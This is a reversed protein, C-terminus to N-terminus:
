RPNTPVVVIRIRQLCNYANEICLLGAVLKLRLAPRNKYKTCLKSLCSAQVRLMLEHFLKLYDLLNIRFIDRMLPAAQKVGMSIKACNALNFVILLYTVSFYWGLRVLSKRESFRM